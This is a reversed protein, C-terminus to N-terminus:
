VTIGGGNGPPLGNCINIIQNLDYRDLESPFARRLTGPLDSIRITGDQTKRRLEQLRQKSIRIGMKNALREWSTLIKKARACEDKSPHPTIDAARCRPAHRAVSASRPIAADRSRAAAPPPAASLVLAVLTALITLRRHM